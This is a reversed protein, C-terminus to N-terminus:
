RNYVKSITQPFNDLFNNKNGIKGIKNIVKFGTTKTERRKIIIVIYTRHKYFILSSFKKRIRELFNYIWLNKEVILQKKKKKKSENTKFYNKETFFFFFSDESWRENIADLDQYLLLPM